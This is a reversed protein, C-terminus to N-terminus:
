KTTSFIVFLFPKTTNVSVYNMFIVLSLRNITVMQMDVRVRIAQLQQFKDKQFRILFLILFFLWVPTGQSIKRITYYYEAVYVDGTQQDVTIGRPYNFQSSGSPGDINGRKGTGAFAQTEGEKQSYEFIFVM